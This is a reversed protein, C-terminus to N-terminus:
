RRRPRLEDLVAMLAEYSPPTKGEIYLNALRETRDIKQSLILGPKEAGWLAVAVRGFKSLKERGFKKPFKNGINESAATSFRASSEHLMVGVGLAVLAVM